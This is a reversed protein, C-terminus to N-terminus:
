ESVITLSDKTQTIEINLVEELIRKTTTLDDIPIAITKVAELLTQDECFIQVGYIAEIKKFSKYVVQEQLDLVGDKWSSHHIAKSPKPIAAVQSGKKYSILQDPVMKINEAETHITVAGEELFVETGSLSTTQVNFRTGLVEVELDETIVKFNAKTQPKKTVTFFAEGNLHVIREEGGQWTLKSGANLEVTSGDPLEFQKWEGFDTEFVLTADAAPTSPWFALGLTILLLIAAAASWLSSSRLFSPRKTKATLMSDQLKQEFDPSLKPIPAFSQIAAMLNQAEEIQNALDIHQILYEKQTPLLPVKAKLWALFNPDELLEASSYGQYKELQIM